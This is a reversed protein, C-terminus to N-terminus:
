LVYDFANKLHEIKNDTISIVDFRAAVEASSLYIRASKCINKIKHKSVAELPSGFSLSKRYKVEIFVVTFDEKAIIDIEGYRTFFNRKIIKYGLNELFLVAKDEALSGIARKNM